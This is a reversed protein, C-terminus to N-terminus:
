VTRRGFISYGGPGILVGAVILALGFLLHGQLLQVIGVIVLVVAILWLFFGM